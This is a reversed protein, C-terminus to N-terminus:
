APIEERTISNYAKGGKIAQFSNIPRLKLCFRQTCQIGFFDDYVVYGFLYFRRFGNSITDAETILERIEQTTLTRHDCKIVSRAMELAENDHRHGPILSLSESRRPTLKEVAPLPPIEGGLESLILDARVERVMAPTEGYNEFIFHVEPNHRMGDMINGVPHLKSLNFARPFLFPKSANVAADASQKAVAISAKTDKSQLWAFIVLGATVLVLSVTAYFLNRTYKALAETLDVLKKELASKEARENREEAAEAGTKRPPILNVVVPPQAATKQQQSGSQNTNGPNQTQSYAAGSLALLLAFIMTRMTLM